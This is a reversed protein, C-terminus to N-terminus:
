SVHHLRQRVFAPSRHQCQQVLRRALLEDCQEGVFLVFGAAQHVSAVPAQARLHANILGDGVQALLRGLAHLADVVRIHEVLLRLEQTHHREALQDHGFARGLHGLDHRHVQHGHRVLHVLFSHRTQERLVAVQRQRYDIGLAAHLTHDCGVVDDIDHAFFGGLVDLLDTTRGRQFCRIELHAEEVHDLSSRHPEHHQEEARHERDAGNAGKFAM